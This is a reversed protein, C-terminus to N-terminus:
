SRVAVGLVRALDGRRGVRVADLGLWSAWQRLEAALAAAVAPVDVDPEAYAAQVLLRGGKRDAKLDVRAVLREDMLFPLVYYGWKRQAAPVFIEIRYDFDFLRAVRPRFWIVPDFPSLLSRAEVGRPIRAHPDLLAPEDWGVITVPQLEGAEVLEAIRPRVEGIPMRYYDALDHATAVGHARAALRLLRRRAENGEVERELIARPLQREILDYVRVFNPRDVVGLAGSDFHVEMAAKVANWDWWESRPGTRPPQDPVDAARVPGATRVHRLVDDLLSPHKATLNKLWRARRGGGAMRYRFLPWIEAPLVSREHAWAEVFDPRGWLLGDLRGRDYAGLRAFPVQYHAPILVNVFDLQLLGLQEIVRRLQRADVRRPRPRDFGQAALAIRRAEDISLQVRAM